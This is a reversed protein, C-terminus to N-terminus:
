FPFQTELFFHRKRQIQLMSFQFKFFLALKRFNAMIETPLKPFKWRTKQQFLTPFNWIVFMLCFIQFQDKTWYLFLLTKRGYTKQSKLHIKQFKTFTHIKEIFTKQTNCFYAYADYFCIVLSNTFAITDKICFKSEFIYVVIM